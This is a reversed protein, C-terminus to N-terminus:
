GPLDWHVPSSYIHHGNVPLAPLFMQPIVPRDVQGQPWPFDHFLDGQTSDQLMHLVLLPNLGTLMPKHFAPGAQGM